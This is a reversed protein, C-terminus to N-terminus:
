ITFGGLVFGLAQCFGLTENQIV